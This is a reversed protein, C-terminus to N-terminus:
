GTTSSFLGATHPKPPAAARSPVVDHPNSFLAAPVPRQAPTAGNRESTTAEAQPTSTVAPPTPASTTRPRRTRHRTSPAQGARRANTIFPALINHLRQINQRSLDIEYPQGDVSFTITQEAPTGDLDDILVVTQVQAM